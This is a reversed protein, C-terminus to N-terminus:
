TEKLVMLMPVQEMSETLNQISVVKAMPKEKLVEKIRISAVGITVLAINIKVMKEKLPITEQVKIQISIVLKLEVEKIVMHKMQLVMMIVKPKLKQTEKVKLKHDLRPVVKITGIIKLM